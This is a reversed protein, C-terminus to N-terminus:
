CALQRPGACDLRLGDSRGLEEYRPRVGDTGVYGHTM